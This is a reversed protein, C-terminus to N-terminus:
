GLNIKERAPALMVVMAPVVFLTLVLSSLLGGVVAIGMPSRSEAGAGLALAIPLIGLVTSSTTMLIPRLRAAAAEAVAHRLALGAHRRQKAFEVILIGNKTVLGVLMVLGIQSFLNLTNNTLWLSALAGALALPVTLMVVLPDRWSEFQAALLLYVLLLALVFVQGLSGSSEMFDRSTGTLETRVAEGGEERIIERMRQVADGLAVGPALGASITAATSRNYRYLAPPVQRESLSVLAGLPILSDSRNRVHVNLVGQPSLRSVSDLEGMIQYQKGADIWYGYRLESFGLQLASGVDTATLGLDRLRDREMHVDMQPKTFRLDADVISFHPDESAKALIKPLLVRLTDLSSAQIVVQVPQSSRGGVRITQEQMVNARVGDIKSFAAQLQQAIQQQSRTREAAPGLSLRMFGSNSSGRGTNSLIIQAEPVLKQVTAVIRQMRADMYAFSAGEPGTVSVILGERDELPSLESKLQSFSFVAVGAAVALVVLALAPHKLSSELHREYFRDLANFWPETRTYFWNHKEHKKLMRSSLMAALTLAVFSSIVVSGGIVLGFERFLRGTFGQLFLLPLFVATLVLTTSVVAFFIEHIGKVAAAKVDLGEEIKAYINELVVIADDVVIGIALVVALLTLVNISFGLFWMLSFVGILSIPVTLVPILTTRWDRLFLFIVLVVLVFAMVITEQVEQLALRVFRTNDFAIGLVLDSPLEQQLSKARKQVEDAIQVQNSGPQPIVVLALMPQGNVRLINNPNEVHMVVQAVDALRVVGTPTRKIILGRLDEVNQIGANARLSINALVGQVQGAPLDVNELNLASRVDALTVNHAVLESPNMRIRIARRKQGWIGIDAVGPVTLLREQIWEAETSLDELSRKPSKLTLMLIPSADADAKSVTPPEADEPLRRQARSVRDRVDNAAQEMDKGLNFEVTISSRGEQSRSTLTRIGDVGNLSAELPETIQQEVVEASAGGYSTSISVTPPDIAPYERMGLQSLGLLGFLIILLSLVWTLVPRRISTSAFSM